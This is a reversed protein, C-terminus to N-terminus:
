TYTLAVSALGTRRGPDPRLGSEALWTRRDAFKLKAAKPCKPKKFDGYATNLGANLFDVISVGPRLEGKHEHMWSCFNSIVEGSGMLFSGTVAELHDPLFLQHVFFEKAARDVM